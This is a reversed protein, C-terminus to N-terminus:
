LIEHLHCILEVVCTRYAIEMAFYGHNQLQKGQWKYRIHQFAIENEPSRMHDMFATHNAASASSAFLDIFVPLGVTWSRTSFVTEAHSSLFLDLSWDEDQNSHPHGTDYCTDTFAM